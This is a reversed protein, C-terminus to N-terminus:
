KTEELFTLAEITAQTGDSVAITIQKGKKERCDGAVFIGPINTKTDISIIFGQKNRELINECFKNQPVLGICVFM